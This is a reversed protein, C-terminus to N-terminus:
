QCNTNGPQIGLLTCNKRYQTARTAASACDGKIIRVTRGFESAAIADHCIQAGGVSPNAHLTWYWIGTQWVVSEQSALQPMGALNLGLAAGCESYIAQGTIQLSGRGHFTRDGAAHGREDIATLYATEVAVNAFFAALERKDQEANGSRAFAALRPTAMAKCLSAYSYAALPVAGMFPAAFMEKFSAEGKPLLKDLVECTAAAPPPPPKCGAFPGWYYTSITPDLSTNDHLAVYPKGMYMVVDGTKYAATKSWEPHNCEPLPVDVAPGAETPNAADSGGGPNAGADSGAAAGGSGTMVGGAGGSGGSGTAGGPAATAGGANSGARGGSRSPSGGTGRDSDVNDNKGASACGGVVAAACLGAALVFVIPARIMGM